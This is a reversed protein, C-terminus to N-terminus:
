RRPSGMEKFGLLAALVEPDLDLDPEDGINYETSRILRERLARWLVQREDTHVVLDNITSAHQLYEGTTYLFTIRRWKGAPIPRALPELPGVQIKYYEERARPHEPEDHLLEARTVLEYGKVAAIYQICGGADGFSGSQYFALYDVGIV